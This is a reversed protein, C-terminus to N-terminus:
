SSFIGVFLYCSDSNKSFDSKADNIISHILIAAPTHNARGLWTCHGGEVSPFAVQWRAEIKYAPTQTWNATLM